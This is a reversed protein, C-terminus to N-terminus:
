PLLVIFKTKDDAFPQLIKFFNKMEILNLKSCFLEVDEGNIGVDKELLKVYKSCLNRFNQYTEEKDKKKLNEEELIKLKEEKIRNEEQEKKYLEEQIKKIKEEEEKKKKLELLDEQKKKELLV